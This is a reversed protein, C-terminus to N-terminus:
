RLQNLFGEIEDNSIAKTQKYNTNISIYRCIFVTMEGIYFTLKGDSICAM